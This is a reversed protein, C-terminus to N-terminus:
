LQLAELMKEYQAHSIVIKKNKSSIFGQEKLQRVSRGVTKISVGINNAIYQYGPEMVITEANTAHGSYYRTLYFMVRELGTHYYLLGDNASRQYLDTAVVYLCCRMMDVNGMIFSYVSSAPVQWAVLRTSAIITAVYTEEQALLELLGISGNQRRIQFYHYANGNGYLRVGQAIGSDIFYVYQPSDGLMTIIEDKEFVVKVAQGKLEDSLSDFNFANFKEYRKWLEKLTM